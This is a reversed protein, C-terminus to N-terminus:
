RCRTQRIASGTVRMLHPSQYRHQNPDSALGPRPSSDTSSAPGTSSAGSGTRGKPCPGASAKRGPNVRLLCFVRGVREPEIWTDVGAGQCEAIDFSGHRPSRHPM